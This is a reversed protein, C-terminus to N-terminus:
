ASTRRARTRLPYFRSRPSAATRTSATVVFRITLPGIRITENAPDIRLDTTLVLM